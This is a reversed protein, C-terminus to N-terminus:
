PRQIGASLVRLLVPPQHVPVKMVKLHTATSLIPHLLQCAKVLLACLEMVAISM